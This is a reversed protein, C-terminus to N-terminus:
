YQTGPSLSDVSLEHVQAADSDSVPSGIATKCDPGSYLQISDMEFANTQFAITAGSDSVNTVQGTIGSPSALVAQLSAPVFGALSAALSAAALMCTIRTVM